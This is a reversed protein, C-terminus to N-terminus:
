MAHIVGGNKLGPSASASTVAVIRPPPRDLRRYLFSTYSFCIAWFTVAYWNESESPEVNWISAVARGPWVTSSNSFAISSSSAASAARGGSTLSTVRARLWNSVEVTLLRSLM